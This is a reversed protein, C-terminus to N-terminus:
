VAISKWLRYKTEYAVSAAPARTLSPRMSLEGSANADHKRVSGSVFRKTVSAQQFQAQNARRGKPSQNLKPNDEGFWALSPDNSVRLDLRIPVQM